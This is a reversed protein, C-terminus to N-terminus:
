SNPLLVLSCQAATRLACTPRSIERFGARIQPPFLRRRRLLQSRVKYLLRDLVFRACFFGLSFLLTMPLVSAADPGRIAMAPRSPAVVLLLPLLLVARRRGWGPLGRVRIIHLPQIPNPLLRNLLPSALPGPPRVSM